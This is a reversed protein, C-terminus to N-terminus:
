YTIGYIEIIGCNQERVNLRTTTSPRDSCGKGRIQWYPNGEKLLQFFGKTNFMINFEWIPIIVTKNWWGDDHTYRILLADFNTFAQKLIIDGKNLAGVDGGYATIGSSTNKINRVDTGGNASKMAEWDILGTLTPQTKGVARQLLSRAYATTATKQQEQHQPQQHEM